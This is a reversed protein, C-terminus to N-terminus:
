LTVVNNNNALCRKVLESMDVVSLRGLKKVPLNGRDIQSEVQRERMGSVKAFADKTMMPCPVLDLEPWALVAINVLALRGIYYVPLHGREIQSRVQGERLGSVEAFKERTMVPSPLVVPPAKRVSSNAPSIQQEM